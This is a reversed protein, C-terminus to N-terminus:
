PRCAVSSLLDFAFGKGEWPDGLNTPRHRSFMILARGTEPLLYNRLEIGGVLGQREVIRVPNKCGALPAPYIWQHYGYFGNERTSRWMQERPAAALLRGDLLAHDFRWLDGITGYAGGSAGYVGLNLLADEKSFEGNPRVQEPAPSNIRFMGFSRMRLPRAFREQMLTEFPKGTIRALVEALVISDCNNYHFKAPARARPEGACYGNASAHPSAAASRYFAPVGDSNVPSDDPQPLGSQHLLLDRIRTDEAAPTRWQRWYRSVPADLDLRGRAVEQMALVATLQKTISAWRWVANEAIPKPGASLFASTGDPDGILLVGDFGVSSSRARVQEVIESPVKADASGALLGATIAILLRLRGTV